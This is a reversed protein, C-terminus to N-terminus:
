LLKVPYQQGTSVNYYYIAVNNNVYALYYTGNSGDAPLIDIGGHSPNFSINGGATSSKQIHAKTHAFRSNIDAATITYGVAIAM